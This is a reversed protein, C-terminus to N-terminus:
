SSIESLLYMSLGVCPMDYESSVEYVDISSYGVGVAGPIFPTSPFFQGYSHHQPHNYGVAWIHSSDLVNAGLLSDVISQAYCLYKPNNLLKGGRSLFIGIYCAYSPEFIENGSYYFSEYKLLNRISERRTMNLHGDIVDLDKDSYTKQVTRWVSKDAFSCLSDLAKTLKEKLGGFDGILEYADCLSLLGGALWTYTCSASVTKEPEDTRKLIFGDSIKDLVLLVNKKVINLFRSDGTARYLDCSASIQYLLDATAGKRSQEYFFDPDMGMQYKDPHKYVESPRLDSMLYDYSCLAKDLCKKSFDFDKDKFYLYGLTLISTVNWQASSPAPSKYFIRGDWGFPDNLTNYMAGNEQITKVYYELAWRCEDNLLIKGWESKDNMAFRLMSLVGISVGGPSKRLDCSQHYGGSLDVREGTEKIYGDDTHCTGNWGLPHGCRQYKFYELMIRKCIDYAKEYIVFQRSRKGGAEIFYDGSKTIESFDGVYLTSGNEFVRTMKGSFAKIEKVNDILYVSFEDNQSDNEALIFRKQANPLFGRHNVRIANQFEPKKM